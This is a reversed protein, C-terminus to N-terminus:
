DLLAEITMCVSYCCGGASNAVIEAALSSVNTINAKFQHQGDEGRDIIAQLEKLQTLLDISM